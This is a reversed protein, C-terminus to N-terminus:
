GDFQVLSGNSTSHEVVNANGKSFAHAAVPLLMTGISEATFKKIGENGFEVLLINGEYGRFIGEGWSTKTKHTFKTQDKLLEM